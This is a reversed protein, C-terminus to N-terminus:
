GSWSVVGGARSLSGSSPWVGGDGWPQEQEYPGTSARSVGLSFSSSRCCFLLKQCLSERHGKTPYPGAQRGDAWGWCSCDLSQRAELWAGAARCGVPELLDRAPLPSLVLSPLAAPPSFLCASYGGPPPQMCTPTVSGLVGFVGLLLSSRQTWRLVYFCTQTRHQRCSEM